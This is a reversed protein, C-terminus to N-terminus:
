AAPPETPPVPDCTLALLAIRLPTDVNLGSLASCARNLLTDGAEDDYGGEDVLLARRFERLEAATAEGEANRRVRSLLAQAALHAEYSRVLAKFRTANSSVDEIYLRDPGVLCCRIACSRGGFDAPGPNFAADITAPTVGPIPEGQPVSPTLLASPERDFFGASRRFSMWDRLLLRRSGDVFIVGAHPGRYVMAAIVHSRPVFAFEHGCSVGDAAIRGSWVDGITLRGEDGTSYHFAIVRNDSSVAVRIPRRECWFVQPLSDGESREGRASTRNPDRYRGAGVTDVAWGHATRVLPFRGLVEGDSLHIIEMSGASPSRAQDADRSPDVPDPLVVIRDGDVLWRPIRVTAPIRDAVRTPTASVLFDWEFLDSGLDIYLRTGSEAFAFMTENREPPAAAAERELEEWGGRPFRPSGHSGAADDTSARATQDVTTHAIEYGDVAEFVRLIGPELVAVFRGCRSWRVADRRGNRTADSERSAASRVGIWGMSDRGASTDPHFVVGVALVPAEGLRMGDVPLWPIYVGTLQGSGPRWSWDLETEMLDSRPASWLTRWENADVDFVLVSLRDGAPKTSAIAIWRGDPSWGLWRDAAHIAFRGDKKGINRVGSSDLLWVEASEMTYAGIWAVRSGCESIAMRWDPAAASSIDHCRVRQATSVDWIEIVSDVCRCMWRGNMSDANAPTGTILSRVAASASRQASSTTSTSSGGRGPKSDCESIEVRQITGDNAVVLLRRDDLWHLAQRPGRDCWSLSRLDEAEARDCRAPREGSEGVRYLTLESGCVQVIWRRDPSITVSPHVSSGWKGERELEISSLLGLEFNKRGVAVEHIGHFAHLQLRDGTPDWSARFSSPPVWRSSERGRVTFTGVEDSCRSRLLDFDRGFYEPLGPVSELQAVLRRLQDREAGAIWRCRIDGIMMAYARATAEDFSVGGQGAPGDGPFSDRM